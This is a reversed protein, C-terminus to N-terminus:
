TALGTSRRKGARILGGASLTLRRNLYLGPPFWLDHTPWLRRPAPPTSPIPASDARVRIPAARDAAICTQPSALIIGANVAAPLVASLTDALLPLRDV